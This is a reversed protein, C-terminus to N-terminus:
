HPVLEAILSQWRANFVSELHDCTAAPGPLKALDLQALTQIEQQWGDVTPTEAVHAGYKVHDSLGDIGSLVLQRGAALAEIAVLGYSEWLSPMVVADVSAIANVPNQASGMFKIRADTGALERLATEERGEGYIYLSLAPNITQRFARIFTDFGKKCDLRGIAGIVQVRNRPPSIKRFASLDVCSQIVVLKRKAVARTHVLWMGQAQSLVVVKNFLQYSARLLAAFRRPHSANHEGFGSTYSHEVHVCARTPHSLRLATLMPLTRWSIALHSVIIDAKILGIWWSDRSVCRLEHTANCTLAPDSKIHALVRLVGSATTDDILHVVRARKM